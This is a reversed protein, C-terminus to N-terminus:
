IELREIIEQLNMACHHVRQNADNFAAVVPSSTRQLVEDRQRSPVNSIVPHLRKFLADIVAELFVLNDGLEDREREYASRISSEDIKDQKQKKRITVNYGM